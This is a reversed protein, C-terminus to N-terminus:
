HPKLLAERKEGWAYVGPSCLFWASIIAAAWCNLGALKGKVQGISYSKREVSKNMIGTAGSLNIGGKTDKARAAAKVGNTLTKARLHPKIALGL